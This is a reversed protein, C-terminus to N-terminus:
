VIEQLNHMINEIYQQRSYKEMAYKIANIRIRNFNSCSGLLDNLAKEFSSYNDFLYGNNEDIIIEKTGGNDFGIVPIGMGMAEVTVRGFGEAKSFMLLIDISNYIEKKNKVFGNFAVKDEIGLKFVLKEVKNRYTGTKGGYFLLRADPYSKLIEAFYHVAGLQNKAKDFMGVLGFVPKEPLVKDEYGSGEFKFGNYIVSSKVSLKSTPDVEKLVAESVFFLRDSLNLFKTKIKKGLVFYANFDLQMFERVHWVHKKKLLKAIFVGLNEASTNSYIIDPKNKRVKYLLYPFMFIDFLLFLPVILYKFRFKVYFLTSYYPIVDYKIGIKDYEQTLISKSPMLVFVDDGNDHLYEILTVLSQNAGFPHSNNLIFQVKM